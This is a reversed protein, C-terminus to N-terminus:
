PIDLVVYDNSTCTTCTTVSGPVLIDYIIKNQTTAFANGAARTM